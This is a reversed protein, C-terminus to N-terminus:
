SLFNSIFRKLLSMLVFVISINNKRAASLLSSIPIRKGKSINYPLIYRVNGNLMDSQLPAYYLCDEFFYHTVQSLRTLKEIEVSAGGHILRTDWILAQGKKIVVPEVDLNLSLVLKKIAEEYVKYSLDVDNRSESNLEDFEFKQYTPIHKSNKAIHLPGSKISIDELAVWAACMLGTPYSQFHVSDQHLPQKSGYPFNITQFPFCKRGFGSEIFETIINWSAIKEIAKCDRYGNVLSRDVDKIKETVEAVEDLISSPIKTEIVAWGKTLFDQEGTIDIM